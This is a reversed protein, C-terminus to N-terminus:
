RPGAISRAVRAHAAGALVEYLRGASDAWDGRAGLRAVEAPDYARHAARLLAEALADPQRAEILEGLAEDGVVDPIGGVRTAVVRRGCALAELVVNPTGENWSPLTLVDCAALWTPIEDLSRAGAVTVRGPFARALEDCRAREDGDGVVALRISPHAAAIREFARVLDGVGKSAKLNGVYLLVPGAAALGLEARAAARDRVHFRRGDIGNEVVVAREPAVGLEIARQELARSVAVVADARPLVRRMIARPGPMRAVVNIDSGHLKVVAAAGLMRAVGIAAIGDPYGWSGLVVDVGRYTMAQRAISALYLAPSLTHGVRPVYLTRPHSVALGDIVEHAPIAGRRRDVGPFWPVTALVDVQCYHSLAAFQQRNFPSSLPEVPNPFLKTVILVRM